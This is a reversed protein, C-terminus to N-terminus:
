SLVYLLNTVTAQDDIFEMRVAFPVLLMQLLQERDAPVESVFRKLLLREIDAMHQHARM